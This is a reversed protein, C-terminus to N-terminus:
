SRSDRILTVAAHGRSSLEVKESGPDAAPSSILFGAEILGNILTDDRPHPILVGGDAVHCLFRQEQDSLYAPSRADTM